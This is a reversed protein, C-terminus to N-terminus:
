AQDHRSDGQAKQSEFVKLSKISKSVSSLGWTPAVSTIIVSRSSQGRAAQMIAPAAIKHGLRASGLFVLVIRRSRLLRDALTANDLSLPQLRQLLAKKIDSDPMEELRVPLPLRWSRNNTVSHSAVIKCLSSARESEEDQPCEYIVLATEDDIERSIATVVERDAPTSEVPNGLIRILVPRAFWWLGVEFSSVIQV